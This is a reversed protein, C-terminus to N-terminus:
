SPSKAAKSKKRDKAPEETAATVSTAPATDPQLVAAYAAPDEVTKSESDEVTREDLEWHSREAASVSQAPTSSLAEPRTSSDAGASHVANAKASRKVPAVAVSTAEIAGLLRELEDPDIYSFEMARGDDTRLSLRLKGNIGPWLARLVLEFAVGAIIAGVGIAVLPFYKAGAGEIVKRAGFLTGLTLGFMSLAAPAWPFRAEKKLERISELAVKWDWTKLTRGLVESHGVMRLTDGEVLITTPRKFSFVGRGLTVVVARVVALTSVISLMRTWFGRSAGMLEAAISVRARKAESVPAGQHEGDVLVGRLALVAAMARLSWNQVPTDRLLQAFRGGTDTGLAVDAAAYPAYPGTFELWDIASLKTKLRTPGSDGDLMEGLFKALLVSVVARELDTVPGRRLVEIPRVNDVEGTSDSAGFEACRADIAKATLEASRSEAHTLLVEGVVKAATRMEARPKRAISEAASRLADTAVIAESQTM